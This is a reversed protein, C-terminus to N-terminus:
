QWLTGAAGRSWTRLRLAAAIQFIHSSLVNKQGNRNMNLVNVPVGFLICKLVKDYIKKGM